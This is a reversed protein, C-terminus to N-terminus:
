PKGVKKFKCKPYGECSKFQGYQGERVILKRGCRPCIDNDLNDRMANINSVHEQNSITKNDLSSFTNYIMRMDDVSLLERERVLRWRLGRIDCVEEVDLKSIDGNVFCVISHFPYKRKIQQNLYYIHTRNQRVPNYFENKKGKSLYQTWNLAESRGYITGSFNKTEIVFIGGANIVIHDIQCTKGDEIHLVLNNIVYQKGEITSGIASRVQMEGLEGLKEKSIRKNTRTSVTEIDQSNNWGSNKYIWVILAVVGAVIGVALLTAIPESMLIAYSFLCSIM